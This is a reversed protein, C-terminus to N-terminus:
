MNSSGGLWRSGRNKLTYNTDFGVQDGKYVEQSEESSDLGGAELLIINLNKNLYVALPISVM